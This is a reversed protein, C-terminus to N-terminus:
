VMWSVITFEDAHIKGKKSAWRRVRSEEASSPFSRVDHLVGVRIWRGDCGMAFSSGHDVNSVVRVSDVSDRIM